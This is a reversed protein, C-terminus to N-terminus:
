SVSGRGNWFGLHPVSQLCGVYFFRMNVYRISEEFTGHVLRCYEKHVWEAYMSFDNSVVKVLGENVVQYILYRHRHM